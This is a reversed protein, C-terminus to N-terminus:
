HPPPAVKTKCGFTLDIKATKDAKVKDCTPGCLEVRTHDGNWKWGDVCTTNAPNDQLIDEPAGGTPTFVVNVRNPDITGGESPPPVVYECSLTNVIGAAIANFIASWDSECISRTIGGTLAALKQYELGPAVAATGGETGSTNCTLTPNAPDMGIIACFIYKRAQPTGFVGFPAAQTTAWTDFATARLGSIGFPDAPDGAEDDTVEVFVKVSDYRVVNDWRQGPCAAAAGGAYSNKLITLSDNSQVDCDLAKFRPPNDACAPGALPQDVCLELNATGKKTIMVVQWDIPSAAIIPVFGQNINMQIKSMEDGMSCSRDVIWIIDVAPISAQQSVATCPADPDVDPTGTDPVVVTGGSAANGGAAATGGSGGSNSASSGGSGGAASSGASGSSGGNNLKEEPAPNASCAAAVGIGAFCSLVYPRLNM